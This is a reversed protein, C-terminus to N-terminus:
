TKGKRGGGGQTGVSLFVVFVLSVGAAATAYWFAAAYPGVNEDGKYYGRRLGEGERVADFVATIVGFGVTTFLRTVTQFIGGAISQQDPGLATMVYMNAVNFELDAGVVMLLFSPFCFAWYSSSTKNLGLLIFSLTYSGAGVFMLMKNNIRHLFAGAFVNVIVGMIALPLLHVATSLASFGWVRQFFLAIFFSAPPFAMFGLTLIAMLLSFNKDRWIYMPMLPFPYFSEWAVFVLILVFGLALTVLVYPTRWGEPASSGLSLAASFMGIGSVTLLMGLPDLQRLLPLSLAPRPATDAPVCFFAAVGLLLYIIALLWFSARWGLLQTAIGSFVMGAAFGVPNGSSFCAFAANKRRSPKGYIKSMKGQAPPVAAASLLGLIGNLVDLSIPTRAFGAALSFISFLLFSAIIMPKQGFLDAIRGFFLLFSGSALSSSATLWTIEAQNMSLARAVIEPIVTTAGMLFPNMAMAMTAIFVFLLEQFTNRFCEPRAGYDDAKKEEAVQAETSISKEDSPPTSTHNDAQAMAPPATKDSM